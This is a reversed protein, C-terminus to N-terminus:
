RLLDKDQDPPVCVIRAARESEPIIAGDPDLMRWVEHAYEPQGKTCVYGEFRLLTQALACIISASHAPLAWVKHTPHTHIAGYVARSHCCVWNVLVPVKSVGTEATSPAGHLKPAQGQQHAPRVVVSMCRILTRDASVRCKNSSESCEGGLSGCGHLSRTLDRLGVSEVWPDQYM